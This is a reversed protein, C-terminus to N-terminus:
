WMNAESQEDEEQGIGPEKGFCSSRQEKFTDSTAIRSPLKNGDQIVIQQITQYLNPIPKNNIWLIEQYSLITNKKYSPRCTSTSSSRTQHAVLAKMKAQSLSTCNPPSEASKKRPSPATTPTNKNAPAARHRPAARHSPRLLRAGRLIRDRDESYGSCTTFAIYLVRKNVLM